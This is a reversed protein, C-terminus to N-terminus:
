LSQETARELDARFRAADIHPGHGVAELLAPRSIFRPRQQLPRLVAVPTENRTVIFTEGAAVAAM